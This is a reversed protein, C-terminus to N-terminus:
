RLVFMVDVEPDSFFSVSMLNCIYMENPRYIRELCMAITNGILIEQFGSLKWRSEHFVISQYTQEFCHRLSFQRCQAHSFQNASDQM